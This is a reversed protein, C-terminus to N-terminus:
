LRISFCVVVDKNCLYQKRYGVSTRPDIAESSESSKQPKPLTQVNRSREVQTSRKLLCRKGCRSTEVMQFTENLSPHSTPVRGLCYM